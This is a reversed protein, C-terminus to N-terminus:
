VFSGNLFSPRSGVMRAAGSEIPAAPPNQDHPRHQLAPQKADQMESALKKKEASASFGLCSATREPVSDQEPMIPRPSACRFKNLKLIKKILGAGVCSARTGDDQGLLHMAFVKLFSLFLRTEKEM